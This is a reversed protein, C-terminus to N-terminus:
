FEHINKFKPFVAFVRWEWDAQVNFVGQVRDTQQYKKIEWV